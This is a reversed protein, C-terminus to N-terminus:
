GKPILILKEVNDLPKFLHTLISSSIIKGDPTHILDEAKTTVSDMLPSQRWCIRAAQTYSTPMPQFQALQELILYV